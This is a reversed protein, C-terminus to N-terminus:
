SQARNYGHSMRKIYVRVAVSYLILGVASATALGVTGMVPALLYILAVETAIASGVIWGLQIHRGRLTMVAPGPGLSGQILRGVMLIALPWIAALYTGPLHSYLVVCASSVVIGTLVTLLASEMSVLRTIRQIEQNQQRRIALAFKSSQLDFIAGNIMALSSSVRNAIGLPAIESSSLIRSGLLIDCSSFLSFLTANISASTMFKGVLRAMQQPVPRSIQNIPLLALLYGASSVSGIVSCLVLTFGTAKDMFLAIAVGVIQVPMLIVLESVQYRMSDGRAMTIGAAISGFSASATLVAGIAADSWSVNKNAALLVATLAGGILARRMVSRLLYKIMAGHWVSEATLLHSVRLAAQYAGGSCLTTSVMAYAMVTVFQGFDAPKCLWGMGLALATQLIITSGRVAVLGIVPHRTVNM